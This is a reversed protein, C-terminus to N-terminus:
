RADRSRVRSRINNYKAVKTWRADRGSLALIPRPSISGTTFFGLRGFKKVEPGQVIDLCL